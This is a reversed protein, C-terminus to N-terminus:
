SDALLGCGEVKRAGHPVRSQIPWPLALAVWIAQSLGDRTLVDQYVPVDIVRDLILWGDRM